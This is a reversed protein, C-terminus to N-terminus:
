HWDEVTIAWRQHDRWEGDIKLYQRSFGEQTFGLHKVLQISRVNEPQINAELRHLGLTQFARDFIQSLNVVGVINNDTVQCVLLGKFDQNQCRSIYARGTEHTLPPFVWPFHFARSKEHLSVLEQCDDEIPKRIFVRTSM